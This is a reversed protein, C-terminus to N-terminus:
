NKLYDKIKLPGFGPIPRGAKDFINCYYTNGWAFCVYYNEIKKPDIEVKLRAINGELFVRAIERIPEDEKELLVFGYPYGSSQLMGVVNKFHVKVNIRFPIYDDTVIEFGDFQPSPNGNGGTLADMAEAARQGIKIQSESSLHILDDLECDNSYVTAINSIKQDLTRQYERIKTWYKDNDIIGAHYKNIQVQVFPLQPNNFDKRMGNILARMDSVFSACGQEFCQAEGQYWFVGKVNGGCEYFRRRAATYYNDIGYPNWHGLSSGGVACPIVGQPVGKRKQMELAFYLGPGVGNNQSDPYEAGWPGEKRNKRYIDSICKDISEWLQHLQSKAPAWTENMYYARVSEMPNEDYLIQDARLKGAGEMNSQGGLLWLDGVYIDKIEITSQEDFITFSYPGGIPIGSLEYIDGEKKIVKGVSVNLMGNTQAKFFCKCVNNEDRQLLAGNKLGYIIKM